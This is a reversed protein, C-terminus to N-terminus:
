ARMEFNRMMAYMNKSGNRRDTEPDGTPKKAAGRVAKSTMVFEGDSLMAPIDDSRETGPGNIAGDRRPFSALGGTAATAIPPISTAYPNYQPMGTSDKWFERIQYRGHDGEEMAKRYLEVGTDQGYGTLMDETVDEVPPTDFAGLGYAAGAALVAAPGWQQLMGPNAKKLLGLAVKEAGARPIGFRNVLHPNAKYIDDLTLEPAFPTYKQGWFSDSPLPPTVLNRGTSLGRSAEKAIVARINPNVGSAGTRNLLATEGATPLKAPALRPAGTSTNSSLVLPPSKSVAKLQVPTASASSPAASITGPSEGPIVPPQIFSDTPLTAGPVSPDLYPRAGIFDGFEGRGLTNVQEAFSRNIYGEPGMGVTQGLGEKFGEFGTTPKPGYGFAGKLGGTLSAIGGSILGDKFSQKLSKGSALSGLGGGIFSAGFTGAGFLGPMSAGLFPIGFAAAALPLVVPAAKKAFGVVKKVAKKVARFISKFFFEPMGTAPNISNLENGVIFEGPDLGMERMQGFLLEKVKPNAELVEIPVVTEGEAAHVVYVDGNRGYEALKDAQEKFSGIGVPALAYDPSVDAFSQLGNSLTTHTQQMM